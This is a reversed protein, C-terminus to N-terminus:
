PSGLFLSPFSVPCPFPHAKTISYATVERSVDWPAPGLADDERLTCPCLQAPAPQTASIGPTLLLWREQSQEGGVAMASHLNKGCHRAVPLSAYIVALNNREPLFAKLIAIWFTAPKTLPVYMVRVVEAARYVPGTVARSDSCHAAWKTIPM